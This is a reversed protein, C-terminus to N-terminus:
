AKVARHSVLWQRLCLMDGHRHSNKGMYKQTSKRDKASQNNKIPRKRTHIIPVIKPLMHVVFFHPMLERPGKILGKESRPSSQCPIVLCPCRKGAKQALAVKGTYAHFSCM